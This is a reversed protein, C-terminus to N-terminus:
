SKAIPSEPLRLALGVCAAVMVAFGLVLGIVPAIPIYVLTPVLKDWRLVSWGAHAVGGVQADQCLCFDGSRKDRGAQM